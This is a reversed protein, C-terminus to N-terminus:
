EKMSNYTKAYLWGAVLGLIIIEVLGLATRGLSQAMAIKSIDIGHFLAGLVNVTWTPAIAVLIACALYVIG